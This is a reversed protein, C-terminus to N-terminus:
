APKGAAAYVAWTMRVLTEPTAQPAFGTGCCVEPVRQGPGVGALELL